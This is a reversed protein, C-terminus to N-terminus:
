KAIYKLNIEYWAGGNKSDDFDVKLTYGNAATPQQTISVGGRGETKTMTVIQEIEKLPASVDPSLQSDCNCNYNDNPQPWVPTWTATGLLTPDHHGDWLGPAAANSHHWKAKAGTLVIQSHGDILARIKLESPCGGQTCVGTDGCKHGCSGCNENDTLPDICKAGCALKDAACSAESSCFGNQCTSGAMCASGCAGCNQASTKVDVCTGGCNTQPSTCTVAPAETNEEDDPNTAAANSGGLEEGPITATACAATALLLLAGFIFLPKGAM